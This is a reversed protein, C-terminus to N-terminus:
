EALRRFTEHSRRMVRDHSQRIKERDAAAKAVAAPDAARLTVRGDEVGVEVAVDQERSVDIGLRHLLLTDLTLSMTDGHRTLTKIM